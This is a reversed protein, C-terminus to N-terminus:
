LVDVQFQCNSDGMAMCSTERVQVQESALDYTLSVLAELFGEIFQCVPTERPGYQSLWGLAYHSSHSSVLGGSATLNQIDFSGFGLQQFLSLGKTLRQSITDSPLIIHQLQSRVVTAATERFLAIAQEGMADEIAQHIACNYYHCHFVM